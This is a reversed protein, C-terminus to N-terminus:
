LIGSEKPYRREVEKRAEKISIFGKQSMMFKKFNTSIKNVRKSKPM